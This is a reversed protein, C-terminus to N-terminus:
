QYGADADRNGKEHDIANQQAPVKLIHDRGAMDGIIAIERRFPAKRFDLAKDQSQDRHQQQRDGKDIEKRRNQCGSHSGMQHM